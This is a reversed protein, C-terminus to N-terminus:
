SSNTLFQPTLPSQIAVSEQQNLVVNKPTRSTTLFDIKEHSTSEHVSTGTPDVICVVKPAESAKKRLEQKHREYVSRDLFRYKVFNAIAILSKIVGLVLFIGNYGVFVLLRSLIGSEIVCVAIVAVLFNCLIWIFFRSFKYQKFEERKEILVEARRPDVSCSARTGWSTDDLNAFSYILCGHLTVLLYYLYSPTSRVLRWFEGALLVPLLQFAFSVLSIGMLANLDYSFSTPSIFFTICSFTIVGCMVLSFIGFVHAVHAYTRPAEDAKVTLSIIGFYMTMVIYVSDFIEKAIKSPLAAHLGFFEAIYFRLFVYNIGVHLYYSLRLILHVGNDFYFALVACRSHHSSNVQSLHDWVFSFSAWFGNIWRRRQGLLLPVSAPPDTSARADPLFKLRYQENPVTFISLCILRDEALYLNAMQCTYADSYVFDPDMATALYTKFVRHHKIASWRYACWGGPLVQLFGLASDFSKDVVNTMLYEFSQAAEIGLFSQSEADMFGCVGGLTADADMALWCKFVANAAPVTGVDLQCCIEPCLERCFGNFFWLHSSLKGGNVHKAVFFVNLSDAGGGFRIRAQYCLAGRRAMTLPFEDRRLGQAEREASIARKRAEYTRSIDEVRFLRELRSIVGTSMREIGDFTVIVAIACNPIGVEVFAPLNKYIGRLTSELDPWTEDYVTVSILIRISRDRICM